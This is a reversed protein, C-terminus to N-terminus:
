HSRKVREDLGEYNELYEHRERELKEVIQKYEDVRGQREYLKRPQLLEEDDFGPISAGRLLRLRPRAGV